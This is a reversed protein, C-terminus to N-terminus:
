SPMVDVGMRCKHQQVTGRSCRVTLQQVLIPLSAKAAAAQQARAITSDVLVDDAYVPGRTHSIAYMVAAGLAQCEQLAPEPTPYLSPNPTPNLSPNPCPM